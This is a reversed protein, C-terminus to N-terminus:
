LLSTGFEGAVFPADPVLIVTKQTLDTHIWGHILDSQLTLMQAQLNGQRENNIGGQVKLVIITGGPSFCKEAAKPAQWHQAKCRIVYLPASLLIALSTKELWNGEYYLRRLTRTHHLYMKGIVNMHKWCNSTSLLCLLISVIGHKQILFGNGHLTREVLHPFVIIFYLSLLTM